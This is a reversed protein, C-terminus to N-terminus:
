DAFENSTHFRAIRLASAHAVAQGVEAYAVGRGLAASIAAAVADPEGDLMTWVLDDFGNALPDAGAPLDPLRTLDPAPVETLDVPNRWANQEEARQARCLGDVLSPLVTRAGDWSTRDLYECAKNIFDLVHGADLYFHDTAAAFLMDALAAPAAGAA